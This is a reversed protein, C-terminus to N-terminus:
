QVAPLMVREPWWAPRALAEVATARAPLQRLAVQALVREAAM